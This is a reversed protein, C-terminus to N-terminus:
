SLAAGAEGSLENGAGMVEQGEGDEKTSRANGIRHLDVPPPPHPQAFGRFISYRQPERPLVEDGGGRCGGSEKEGEGEGRDM